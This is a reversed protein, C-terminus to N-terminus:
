AEFGTCWWRRIWRMSKARSRMRSGRIMAVVFAGGPVHGQGAGAAHPFYTAIKGDTDLGYQKVAGVVGVITIPKKPDFWVHKGVADGHPWFRQAFKQDIIVVQPTDLNDQESFFRGSMLPIQMTRFYDTSAIRQDVQLEQGPPPTYGEM